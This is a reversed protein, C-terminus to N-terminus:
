QISENSNHAETKRVFDNTNRKDREVAGSAIGGCPDCEVDM